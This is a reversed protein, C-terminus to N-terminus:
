VLSIYFLTIVFDGLKCLETMLIDSKIVIRKQDNNCM